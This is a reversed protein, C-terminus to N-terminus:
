WVKRRGVIIQEWAQLFCLTHSMELSGCLQVLRSIIKGYIPGSKTQPQYRFVETNSRCNLYLPHNQLFIINVKIYAIEKKKKPM